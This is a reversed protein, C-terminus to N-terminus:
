FIPKIAAYNPEARLASSLSRPDVFGSLYFAAAEGLQERSRRLFSRRISSYAYQTEGIRQLYRRLSIHFLRADLPTTPCFRRKRDIRCFLFGHPITPVLRLWRDLERVACISPDSTRPIAITDRPGRNRQLRLLYGDKTRKLWARRILVAERLPLGVRWCLKLLARTQVRIAVNCRKVDRETEALLRKFVALPMAPSPRQQPTLVRCAKLETVFARVILRQTKREGDDRPGLIALCHGYWNLTRWSIAPTEHVVAALWSVKDAATISSCSRGRARLSTRLSQLRRKPLKYNSLPREFSNFSSPHTSTAYAKCFRAM